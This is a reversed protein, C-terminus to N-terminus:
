RGTWTSPFNLIASLLWNYEVQDTSPACSSISWHIHKNQLIREPNCMLHSTNKSISPRLSDKQGSIYISPRFSAKQVSLLYSAANPAMKLHKTRIFREPRLSSVTAIMSGWVPGQPSQVFAWWIGEATQHFTMHPCIMWFHAHAQSIMFSHLPSPANWTVLHPLSQLKTCMNQEIIKHGSAFLSFGM